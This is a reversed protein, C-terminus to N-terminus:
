LITTYEINKITYKVKTFRRKCSVFTSKIKYYNKKQLFSPSDASYVIEYIKYVFTSLDGDGSVVWVKFVLIVQTTYLYSSLVESPGCDTEM